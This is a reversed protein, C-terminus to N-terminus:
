PVDAERVTIIPLDDLREEYHFLSATHGPTYPYIGPVPWSLCSCVPQLRPDFASYDWYPATTAGLGLGGVAQQFLRQAEM